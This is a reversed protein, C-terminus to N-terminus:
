RGVLPVHDKGDTIDQSRFGERLSAYRAVSILITKIQNFIMNQYKTIM